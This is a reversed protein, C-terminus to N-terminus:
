RKNFILVHQWPLGDDVRGLRFGEPEVEMKAESVSMKHEPRIPISSDEKKYELLVLRGGPKLAQHIGRLMAQPQSFEHYVDVLLALDISAPPLKPDDPAGLVLQVNTIRSSKLRKDLIDLMPQQIDSAYVVGNSGVRKSLRLTMYGSGAGIDAVSTGKKIGIIGLAEDPNEETEREKRDLWEAGRADMVAAYRRGSIPHVGTTQQAVVSLATVAGIAAVVSTCWARIALSRTM